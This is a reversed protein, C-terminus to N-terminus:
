IFIKANIQKISLKCRSAVANELSFLFTPNTQVLSKAVDIFLNEECIERVESMIETRLGIIIALRNSVYYSNCIESFM